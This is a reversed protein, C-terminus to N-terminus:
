TPPNLPPNAHQTSDGTTSDAPVAQVQGSETPTAGNTSQTVGPVPAGIIRVEQCWVDVRILTVGSRLTRQFGYHITNASPYSLEPTVVTVLDLSEVVKELAQLCDRRTESILFGVKAQFPVKVKNYSQFAGKEQPYDSIRYDRAYEVSAVSDHVIVPAGDQTFIGWQQPGFAATSPSDETLLITAM